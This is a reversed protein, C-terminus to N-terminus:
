QETGKHLIALLDLRSPEWTLYGGAAIEKAQEGLDEELLKYNVVVNGIATQLLVYHREYIKPTSVALYKQSAVNWFSDLVKGQLIVNVKVATAGTGSEVTVLEFPVEPAIIPTYKVHHGRVILLMEYPVGTELLASIQDNAPEIDRPCDYFIPIVQGTPLRLLLEYYSGYEGQMEELVGRVFWINVFMTSSSTM